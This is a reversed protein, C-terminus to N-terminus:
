TKPKKKPPYEALLKKADDPLRSALKAADSEGDSYVGYWVVSTGSTMQIVLTGESTTIVRTNRIGRGVVGRQGQEALSFTVVLDPRDLTETLGKATLNTRITDQIKTLLVKNNIEAKRSVARGERVAFTKFAPFDAKPDFEIHHSDARPAPALLAVVALAALGRM